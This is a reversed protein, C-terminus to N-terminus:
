LIKWAAFQCYQSRPRSLLSRRLGRCWVAHNAPLVSIRHSNHRRFAHRIFHPRQTPKRLNTHAMARWSIPTHHQLHKSSIVTRRGPKPNGPSAKGLQTETGHFRLKDGDHCLPAPEYRSIGGSIFPECSQNYQHTQHPFAKHTQISLRDNFFTSACVYRHEVICGQRYESITLLSIKLGRLMM